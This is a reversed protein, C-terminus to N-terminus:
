TMISKKVWSFFIQSYNDIAKSLKEMCVERKRPSNKCERLHNICDKLVNVQEITLSCRNKSLIAGMGHILSDLKQIKKM